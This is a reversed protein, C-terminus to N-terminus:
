SKGRLVFLLALLMIVVGVGGPWVFWGRGSSYGAVLCGCLNASVPLAAMVLVVRVAGSAGASLNEGAMVVGVRRAVGCRYGGRLM